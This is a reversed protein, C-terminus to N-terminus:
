IIERCEVCIYPIKENYLLDYVYDRAIFHHYALNKVKKVYSLERWM